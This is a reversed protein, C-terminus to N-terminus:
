NKCISSRDLLKLRNIFELLENASEKKNEVYIIMDDTFLSVKLEKNRM